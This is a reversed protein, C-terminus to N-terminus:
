AARTTSGGSVCVRTCAWSLTFSSTVDGDCWVVLDGHSAVLSAWLANGKGHGVGHRAHVDDISVVTAGADAVVTATDDTSRDDLVILEDLVPWDDILVRRVSAVIPGITAVEDRCPICMSISRVGKREVLRQATWDAVGFTQVRSRM